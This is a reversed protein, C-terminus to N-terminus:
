WTGAKPCGGEGAPTCVRKRAGVPQVLIAFTTRADVKMTLQYRTPKTAQVLVEGEGDGLQADGVDGLADASTCKRTDNQKAYCADLRDAVAVLQSQATAASVAGGGTSGSGCGVLVAPVPLLLAVSGGAVLRRRRAKLTSQRPASM